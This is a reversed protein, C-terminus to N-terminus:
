RPSRVSPSLCVMASKFHRGSSSRGSRSRGLYTPTTPSLADEREDQPNWGSNRSSAAGSLMSARTRQSLFSLRGLRAESDSLDSDIEDDAPVAPRQDAPGPITREEPDPIGYVTTLNEALAHPDQQALFKIAALSQRRLRGCCSRSGTANTPRERHM